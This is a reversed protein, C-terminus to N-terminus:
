VQNGCQTCRYSGSKSVSLIIWVILWLGATLVTLILHLVHNPTTAQAMVHKQCRNCYAGTTKIGM